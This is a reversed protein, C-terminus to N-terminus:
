YSELLTEFPLAPGEALVKADLEAIGFAIRRM